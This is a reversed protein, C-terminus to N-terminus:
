IQALQSVLLLETCYERILHEARDIHTDTLQRRVLLRLAASLKLFNGPNDPHLSFKNNIADPEVINVAADVMAHNVPPPPVRPEGEPLGEVTQSTM